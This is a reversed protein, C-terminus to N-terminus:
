RTDQLARPLEDKIFTYQRKLWDFRLRAIFDETLLSTIREPTLIRVVTFWRYSEIIKKFLDLDNYHGAKERKGELVELCDEPPIDYDWMLSKMYGIKEQRSFQM